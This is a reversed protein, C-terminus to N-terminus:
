KRRRRGTAALGAIGTGILLMTTPEPVPAASEGSYLSVHSIAGQDPWFNKLKIIEEGNWGRTGLDFLYWAPTQNGDKVLLYGGFLSMGGDWTITAEAPDTPSNYFITTYYSALPGEEAGGVNQKYALDTIGEGALFIGIANQGEDNGKLDHYFQDDWDGPTLLLAHASVAYILVLILSFLIKKM